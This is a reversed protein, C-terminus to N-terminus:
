AIVEVGFPFKSFIECSNEDIMIPNEYRFGINEEPCAYQLACILMEGAKYVHDPSTWYPLPGENLGIRWEDGMVGIGHECGPLMWRDFGRDRALATVEALIKGPNTGAKYNALCLNVADIFNQAHWLQRDDASGIFYNHSHDGLGLRYMAHLDVMLPEGEEVTRRTAPTCAGMAYGTRYGAAIENGGTFSWEWESGEKRMALAAIGAVETETAGKWGGNSLADYVARHGADVIRSAERFRAITGADKILSLEDILHHANVLEHGDLAKQFREFEYHTLNGEALYNSMGSEIGIRKKGSNFSNRIFGAVASIQDMGELHAYGLVHDADLWSDDAVRAQDIMFTFVTPLGRAPIVVFSRWPCFADTTWSLTRLRSGLYLDIREEAMHQQVAAIRGPYDVFYPDHSPKAIDTM